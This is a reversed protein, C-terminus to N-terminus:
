ETPEFELDSESWESGPGEPVFQNFDFDPAPEARLRRLGSVRNSHANNQFPCGSVLYRCTNSETIEAPPAPRYDSSLM